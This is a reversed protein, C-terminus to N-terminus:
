FFEAFSRTLEKVGRNFHAIHTLDNRFIFILGIM